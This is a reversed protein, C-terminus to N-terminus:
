CRNDSVTSRFQDFQKASLGLLQAGCHRTPPGARGRDGLFALRTFSNRADVDNVMRSKILAAHSRRLSRPRRKAVSSVAPAATLRSMSKM